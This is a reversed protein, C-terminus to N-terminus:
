PRVTRKVNEEPGVDPQELIRQAPGGAIANKVDVPLNRIKTIQANLQPDQKLVIAKLEAQDQTPDCRAICKQLLALEDALSTDAARILNLRLLKDGSDWIPGVLKAKYDAYNRRCDDIFEPWCNLPVDELKKLFEQLRADRSRYLGANIWAQKVADKQHM